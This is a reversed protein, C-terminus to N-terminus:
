GHEEAGMEQQSDDEEKQGLIEDPSVVDNKEQQYKEAADEGVDILSPALYVAPASNDPLKDSEEGLM